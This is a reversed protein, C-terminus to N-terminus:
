RLGFATTSRGRAESTMTRDYRPGGESAACIHAATGINSVAATSKDSPGVTPAECISCRYAARLALASRIPAPFEDRM